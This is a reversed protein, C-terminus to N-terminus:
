VKLKSRQELSDSFIADKKIEHMKEQSINEESNVSKGYAFIVLGATFIVLLSYQEQKIWKM